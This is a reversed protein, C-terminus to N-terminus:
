VEKWELQQYLTEYNALNVKGTIEEQANLMGLVNAKKALTEIDEGKALADAIGAVTSDGSGVPNKVEIKPIIVQYFRGEHKVMAGKAGLSLLIIPIEDFLSNSLYTKLKPIERTEEVGLLDAIEEHNPKLVTPYNKTAFVAKLSAGSTDLVTKVNDGHAIKILQSYFDDPVGKPLSGSLTVVDTEKILKHFNELFLKMEKEQVSEGKELIETQMGECLIAICNRTNAKTTTFAHPINAADLQSIIEEGLSGGLFGTSLVASGLQALVRTVNLGKGGATKRVNEVRNVTDMHFQKLQYSIDVSPNLTVTVIM